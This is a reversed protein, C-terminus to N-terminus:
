TTLLVDDDPSPCPLPVVLAPFPGWVACGYVIYLMRAGPPCRAGRASRAACRCRTSRAARLLVYIHQQKGKERGQVARAGTRAGASSSIIVSSSIVMCHGSM